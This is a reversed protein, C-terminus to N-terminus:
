IYPKHGLPFLLLPTKLGSARRTEQFQKTLADTHTEIHTREWDVYQINNVHFLAQIVM